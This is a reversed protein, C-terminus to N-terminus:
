WSYNLEVAWSSPQGYTALYGGLNDYTTNVNYEEDTLNRGILAVHWQESDSGLQIRGSLVGYDEIGFLAADIPTGGTDKNVQDDRWSYNLQFLALLSDFVTREYRAQLFYSFEPAYPRQLGDYSVVTEFDQAVFTNDSDLETDMWAFGAVLM